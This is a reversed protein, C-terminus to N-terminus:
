KWCRRYRTVALAFRRGSTTPTFTSARMRSSCSTFRALPSGLFLPTWCTIFTISNSSSSEYGEIDMQLLLDNGSPVATSSVWDDLSLFHEGSFAGIYRPTFHFRAHQVPPGDVSADALFVDMGRSACHEEFGAIGSVGPSFCENIGALDDPVLYGGDGDPGLRILPVPPM